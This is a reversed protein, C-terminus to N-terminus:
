RRRPRRLPAGLRVRSRASPARSRPFRRVARSSSPPSTWAAGCRCPPPPARAFPRASSRLPPPSASQPPRRRRRRPRRPARAALRTAAAAPPASITTSSRPPEGGHLRLHLGHTRRELRSGAAPSPFPSRISRRRPRPPSSSSSSSPAHPRRPPPPPSPLRRRTQALRVRVDGHERLASVAREHLGHPERRRARARSAGPRLTRPPASRPAEASRSARPPAAASAAAATRGAGGARPAPVRRPGRHLHELRPRLRIPEKALRLRAPPLRERPQLRRRRPEVRPRLVGRRRKILIPPGKGGRPFPAHVFDMVFDVEGTTDLRQLRQEGRRGKPTDRADDSRCKADRSSSPSSLARSARRPSSRARPRSTGTDGACAVPATRREDAPADASGHVARESAGATRRPNAPADRGSSRAAPPPPRRARPRSIM